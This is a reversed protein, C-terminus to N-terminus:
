AKPPFRPLLLDLSSEQHSCLVKSNSVIHLIIIPYRGKPDSDSALAPPLTKTRKKILEQEAGSQNVYEVFEANEVDVKNGM